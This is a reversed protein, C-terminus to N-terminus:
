WLDGFKIDGLHNDRASHNLILGCIRVTPESPKSGDARRTLDNALVVPMGGFLAADAALTLLSYNRKM